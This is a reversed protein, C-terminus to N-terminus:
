FYTISYVDYFSENANYSPSSTFEKVMADPFNVDPSKQKLLGTSAMFFDQAYEPYLANHLYRNYIVDGMVDDAKMGETKPLYMERKDKITSSGDLCDSIKDWVVRYEEYLPHCQVTSYPKDNDILM